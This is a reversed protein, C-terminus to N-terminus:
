ESTFNYIFRVDIISDECEHGLYVAKKDLEYYSKDSLHKAAERQILAYTKIDCNSLEKNHLYIDAIRKTVDYPIIVNRLSTIRDKGFDYQLMSIKTKENKLLIETGIDNEPTFELISNHNIAGRIFLVKFGNPCEYEYFNVSRYEFSDIDERRVKRLFQELTIEGFGSMYSLDYEYADRNNVQDLVRFVRDYIAKDRLSDNKHLAYMESM